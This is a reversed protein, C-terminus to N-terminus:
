RKKLLFSDLLSFIIYALVTVSLAIRFDIFLFGLFIVVCLVLLLNSMLGEDLSKLSFMRLNSVMLIMLVFPVGFYWISSQMANIYFSKDFQVAIFIGILFMTAAPTPLGKFYKVSPSTNFKALRIAAGVLFFISAIYKSWHEFPAVMSYLYAPAMGFSIMDALSDLEKGMETIANFKRAFFGDLTDLLIGCLLFLSGYYIDGVAVALFGCAINCITLFSPLIKKISDM